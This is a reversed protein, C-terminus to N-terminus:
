VPRDGAVQVRRMVRRFGTTDNLAVHKTCRNDWFAVSGKEWRFRCTFEPRHGHNLLFDLLGRGEAESMGEIGVTYSHNVFLMKRRTEPHIRVIPHVSVTERWEADERVKTSRTADRGAQPGAVLRDTHIAKLEAIVRKMTESLREYALYQNAFITDGGHPPVEVGYLIAGMPPAAMMTTDAHWDEGVVSVDNPERVLQVIEPDTGPKRFNPHVFIAGFRRAFAKHREPSLDQDRFFIVGHDLLAQRIDGITDDTLEEAINVGHVEAGLAGAIPRIEIRSNRM